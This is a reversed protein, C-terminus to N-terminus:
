FSNELQNRKKTLTVVYARTKCYAHHCAKIFENTKNRDLVLPTHFYKAKKKRKLTMVVRKKHQYTLSPKAAPNCIINVQGFIVGKGEIKCM